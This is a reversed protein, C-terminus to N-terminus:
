YLLVVHWVRFLCVPVERDIASLSIEGKGGRKKEKGTGKKQKKRNGQLRELAKLESAASRIMRERHLGRDM